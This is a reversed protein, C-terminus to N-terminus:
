PCATPDNSAAQSAHGDPWLYYCTGEYWIVLTAKGPTGIIPWPVTESEAPTTEDTEDITLEVEPTSESVPPTTADFPGVCVTAICVLPVHVPEGPIDASQGPVDVTYPGIVVTQSPVDITRSGPGVSQDGRVFCVYTAPVEPSGQCLPNAHAASSPVMAAVAAVAFVLLKM